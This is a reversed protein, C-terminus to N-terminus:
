SWIINYFFICWEAHVVSGVCDTTHACTMDTYELKAEVDNFVSINLIHRRRTSCESVLSYLTTSFRWIVCSNRWDGNTGSSTRLSLVFLPRLRHVVPHCWRRYRRLFQSMRTRESRFFFIRYSLVANDYQIYTYINYIPKYLKYILLIRRPCNNYHMIIYQITNVIINISLNRQATQEATTRKREADYELMIRRRAHVIYQRYFWV